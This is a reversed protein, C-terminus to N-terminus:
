GDFGGFPSTRATLDPHETSGPKGTGPPGYFVLQQRDRLLWDVDRLYDPDLCLVDALSEITAGEDEEPVFEDGPGILTQLALDQEPTVRFNSGQAFALIELDKLILHSKLQTRLLPQDLVREVRVRVRRRPGDFKDAQRQFRKEEPSDEIDAPDTVVRGVALIAADSGSAWLYVRDGAHIESAYRTVLWTFEKLERIAAPLDYLDPSSQFIWSPQAPPTGSGPASPEYIADLLPVFHSLQDLLFQYFRPGLELAEDRTLFRTIAAGGGDASSAHAIWEGVAPMRSAEPSQTWQQRFAYGNEVSWTALDSIVSGDALAALAVRASNMASTLAPPTPTTRFSSSGTGSGFGIEVHDSSVILFLQFAYSKNGVDAPFVCSWYIRSVRGNPSPHSAFARLGTAASLDGALRTAYELLKTRLSQVAARDGESIARFNPLSANRELVDFDESHLGRPEGSTDAM